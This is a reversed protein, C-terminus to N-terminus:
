LSLLGEAHRTFTKQGALGSRALRIDRLPEVVVAGSLAFLEDVASALAVGVAEVGLLFALRLAEDVDTKQGRVRTRTLSQSVSPEEIRGTAFALLKLITSTL